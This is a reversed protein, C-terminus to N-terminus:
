KSLDPTVVPDNSPADVRDANAIQDGGGSVTGSPTNSFPTSNVPGAEVTRAGAVRESPAVGAPEVSPTPADALPRGNVTNSVDNDALLQPFGEAAATNDPSTLLALPAALLGVALVITSSRM